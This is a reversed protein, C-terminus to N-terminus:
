TERPNLADERVSALGPLGRSYIHQSRMDAPTYQRTPPETDSLDRPDLNTSVAPRGIPDGEVEAEKLNKGLKVVPTELKQGNTPHLYRCRVREAAQQAKQLATMIFEKQSRGMAETITDPRPVEGQAPDSSRRKRLSKEMKTGATRESLFLEPDSNKVTPYCGM